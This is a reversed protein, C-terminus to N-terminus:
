TLHTTNASSRNSWLHYIKTVESMKKLSKTVGLARVHLKVRFFSSVNYLYCFMTGSSARILSHVFFFSHGKTSSITNTNMTFDAESSNRSPPNRDIMSQFRTIEYGLCRNQSRTLGSRTLIATPVNGRKCKTGM